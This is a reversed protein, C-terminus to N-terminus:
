ECLLSQVTKSTLKRLVCRATMRRVRREPRVEFVVSNHSHRQAIRTVCDGLLTCFPCPRSITASTLRWSSAHTTIPQHNKRM